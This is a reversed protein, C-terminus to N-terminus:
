DFSFPKNYQRVVEQIQDVHPEIIDFFLNIAMLIDNIDSWSVITQSSSFTVFTIKTKTTNVNKRYKLVSRNKYRIRGKKYIMCKYKHKKPQEISHLASSYMYTKVQPNGTSDDISLQIVDKHEKSNMLKKFEERNIPFGIEFKTNLMTPRCEFEIRNLPERNPVFCENTTGLHSLLIEIFKFGDDLSRGGVIKINSNQFIMANINYDGLSVDMQVQNRFTVTSKLDEHTYTQGCQSCHYKIVYAGPGYEPDPETVERMTKIKRYKGSGEPYEEMVQCTKSCWYKSSEKFNIGKVRSWYRTSIISGYPATVRKKDIKKKKKTRPINDLLFPKVGAYIMEPNNTANSYMLMAVTTIKLDELTPRVLTM